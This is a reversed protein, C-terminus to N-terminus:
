MNGSITIKHYGINSGDITQIKIYIRNNGCDINNLEVTNIGEYSSTFDAIGDSFGDSYFETYVAVNINKECEVTIDYNSYYSLGFDDGYYDFEYWIVDTGVTSDSSTEGYYNMSYDTNLYSYNIKDIIISAPNDISDHIVDNQVSISLLGTGAYGDSGEVRIYYEEGESLIFRENHTGYDSKRYIYEYREALPDSYLGLHNYTSGSGEYLASASINYIGDEPVIFHFIQVGDNATSWSFEDNVDIDQVTYQLKTIKVSYSSSVPLSTYPAICYVEGEQLLLVEGDTFRTNGDASEWRREKPYLYFHNTNAESSTQNVDFQYFGTEPVTFELWNIISDTNQVSIETNLAITTFQETVENIKFSATIDEEYYGNFATIYYAEGGTLICTNKEPTQPFVGWSELEEGSEDYLKFYTFVESPSLDFYYRGSQSPTFTYKVTNYYGFTDTVYEGMTYPKITNSTAELALQFTFPEPENYMFPDPDYEFKLYYIDGASVRYGEGPLYFAVNEDDPDHYAKVSIEYSSLEATLVGDNPAVFKYYADMQDADEPDFEYIEGIVLSDDDNIEEVSTIEVYEDETIRELNIDSFTYTGEGFRDFLLKVLSNDGNGVFAYCHAEVNLDIDFYESAANYPNHSQQLMVQPQNESGTSVELNFTLKYFYDNFIPLDGIFAQTNWEDESGNHVTLTFGTASANSISTYDAVATDVSGANKWTHGTLLNTNFQQDMNRVVVRYDLDTDENSNIRFWITEGQALDFNCDYHGDFYWGNYQSGWYNCNETWLDFWYSDSAATILYSGETPATFQYWAYSDSDLKGTVVNDVSMATANFMNLSFDIYDTGRLQDQDFNFQISQGEALFFYCNWDSRGPELGYFNNLGELEDNTINYLFINFKNDFVEETVIGNEDTLEYSTAGTYFSDIYYYGASSATYTYNVPAKRTNYVTYNTGLTVPQEQQTMVAVNVTGYQDSANLPQVMLHYLQDEDCNFYYTYGEATYETDLGVLNWNQDWVILDANHENTSIIYQTRETGYFVRRDFDDPNLSLTNQYEFDDVSVKGEMDDVAHVRFSIFDDSDTEENFYGRLYITEGASLYPYYCAIRKDDSYTTDKWNSSQELQYGNEDYEVDTFDMNNAIDYYFQKNSKAEVLYTGDSPATFSYTTLDGAIDPNITYTENDTMSATDIANTSLKMTYEFAMNQGSECQIYVTQGAAVDFTVEARGGNYDWAIENGGPADFVRVDLDESGYAKFYVRTNEEATYAYYPLYYTREWDSGETNSFQYTHETYTEDAKVPRIDADYTYYFVFANGRDDASVIPATGFTGTPTAYDGDVIAVDENLSVRQGSFPVFQTTNSWAPSVVSYRWGYDPTTQENVVAFYYVTSRGKKDYVMVKVDTDYEYANIATVLGTNSVTAIDSNFSYYKLGSGTAPIQYTDGVKLVIKNTSANLNDEEDLSVFTMTDLQSCHYASSSEYGRVTATDAIAEDYVACGINEITIDLNQVDWFAKYRVSFISEPLVVPNQITTDEFAHAGIVTVGDPIILSTIDLDNFPSSEADTYSWMEGSGSLTLVGDKFTYTLNDGCANDPAEVTLTAPNSTKSQGYNDSVTCRYQTGDVADEGNITLTASNTDPMAIWQYEPGLYEWQYTLNGTGTATVTFTASDSPTITTNSPNTLTIPSVVNFGVEDSIIEKGNQDTIICRFKYNLRNAFFDVTLEPTQSGALSSNKWTGSSNAQWQYTLENGEAVVSFKAKDGIKGEYDVPQSTIEIENIASDAYAIIGANDSLLIPTNLSMTSLAIFFAISRKIKKM